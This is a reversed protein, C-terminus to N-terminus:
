DNGARAPGYFVPRKYEGHVTFEIDTIGAELLDRFIIHDVYCIAQGHEDTGVRLRATNRFPLESKLALKKDAHKQICEPCEVWARIVLEPVPLDQSCRAGCSHCTVFSM